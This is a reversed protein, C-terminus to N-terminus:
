KRNRPAERGRPDHMAQGHFEARHEAPREGRAPLAGHYGKRFDLAHDVQGYFREPGHYYSGAGIFV